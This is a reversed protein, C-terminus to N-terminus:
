PKTGVVRCDRMTRAGHHQPKEIAAVFGAAEMAAKLEGAHWVYIHAHGAQQFEDPPTADMPRGADLWGLLWVRWREKLDPPGSRGGWLAHAGMLEWRRNPQKKQMLIECKLADPTEIELTGGPKLWRFAREILLAGAEREIHEIAHICIVRDVYREAFEIHRIDQRVDARKAHLDVNCWGPEYRDGSGLNVRIAGM